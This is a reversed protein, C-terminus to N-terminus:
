PTEEMTPEGLQHAGDNDRSTRTTAVAERAFLPHVGYELAALFLARRDGHPDAGTHTTM